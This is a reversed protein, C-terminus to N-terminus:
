QAPIDAPLFETIGFLNLTDALSRAEPTVFDALPATVVKVGEVGSISLEYTVRPEIGSGSNSVVVNHIQGGAIDFPTYAILRGLSGDPNLGIVGIATGYPSPSIGGINTLASFVLVKDIGLVGELGSALALSKVHGAHPLASTVNGDADLHYIGSPFWNGDPTADRGFVYAGIGGEEAVEECMYNGAAISLHGGTVRAAYLGMDGVDPVSFINETGIDGDVRTSVVGRADTCAAELGSASATAPAGSAFVSAAVLYSAAIIKGLGGLSRM